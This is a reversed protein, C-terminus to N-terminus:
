LLLPRWLCSSRAWCDNLIFSSFSDVWLIDAIMCIITSLWAIGTFIHCIKNLLLHRLPMFTRPASTLNHIRKPLLLVLGQLTSCADSVFFVASLHNGHLITRNWNHSTSPNATHIHVFNPWIEHRILWLLISSILSTFYSVVLVSFSLGLLDLETSSSLSALTWNCCVLWSLIRCLM